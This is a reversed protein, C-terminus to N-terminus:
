PNQKRQELRTHVLDFFDCYGTMTCAIIIKEEGQQLRLLRGEEKMKAEFPLDLRISRMPAVASSSRIQDQESWIRFTARHITLGVFLVALGFGLVSFAQDHADPDRLAVVGFLSFLVVGIAPFVMFAPAFRGEFGRPTRAANKRVSLGVIRLIGIVM